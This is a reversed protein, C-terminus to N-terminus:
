LKPSLLWSSRKLVL